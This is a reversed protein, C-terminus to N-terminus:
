RGLRTGPAYGVKLDSPFPRAPWVGLSPDVSIVIEDEDVWGLKLQKEGIAEGDIAILDVYRGFWGRRERIVTSLGTTAGCNRVSVLLKRTGKPSWSTYRDDDTCSCAIASLALAALM